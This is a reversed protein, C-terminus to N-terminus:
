RAKEMAQLKAFEAQLRTQFDTNLNKVTDKHESERKKIDNQYSSDKTQQDASLKDILEKQKRQLDKLEDANKRQSEALDQQYRADRDQLDKAAQELMQKNKEQMTQILLTYKSELAKLQSLNQKQLEAVFSNHKSEM